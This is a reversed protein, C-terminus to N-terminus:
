ARTELMIDTFSYVHWHSIKISVNFMEHICFTFQYACDAGNTTVATVMLQALQISFLVMGSEIIVSIISYLKRGGNGTAGLAQQGSTPKVQRFVKYIRFVILGTVLANVSMSAALGTLTLQYLWTTAEYQGNPM